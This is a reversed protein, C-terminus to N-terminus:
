LLLKKLNKIIPIKFKKLWYLEKQSMKNGHKLGKLHLLSHIFLYTFFSKGSVGYNKAERKIKRLNIFIEGSKKTLPFSLVNASYDKQRYKFNLDKSFKDSVFVLSLYYNRGIIDNKIKKIILGGIPPKIKVKNKIDIM